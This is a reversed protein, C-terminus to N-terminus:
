VRLTALLFSWCLHKVTFKAFKKLIAKKGFVAPHGISSNGRELALFFKLIPRGRLVDMREVSCIMKGSWQLYRGTPKNLILFFAMMKGAPLCIDWLFM